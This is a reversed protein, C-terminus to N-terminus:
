KMIVMQQTAAHTATKLTYFVIGSTKSLGYTSVSPTDFTLPIENYGKPFSANVVKIVRGTADVVTLLVESETPLRFRITTEHTFPNPANPLLAFDLGEAKDPATFNLNINSVEGSAYYAEAKTWDSTINLVDSLSINQQAEVVIKFLRANKLDKLSQGNWSVTALGNENFVAFNSTNFGQLDISQIDKIQVSKNDFKLTFQFAFADSESLHIDLDYIKGAELLRNELNFKLGNNRAQINGNNSMLNQASGSVDCTKVAVFDANRITDVVNTFTMSEPLNNLPASPSPPLVTNKPIFRWATNNPIRSIQRLILKRTLLMDTADIYGDKDVDGAILKYPSTFPGIDLSHQSMLAIDYTTVGNIWDTDRLATLTFNGGRLINNFNYDSTKIITPPANGGTLTVQAAISKGTETRISGIITPIARIFPACTKNIDNVTFSTTQSIANGTSDRAWIEIYQKGTDACAFSLSATTPFVTGQGIKRIGLQIKNLSSCNDSVSAVLQQATVTAVGGNLSVAFNTKISLKPRTTDRVTVVATCNAKNGARDQVYLTVNKDGIDSCYFCPHILILYWERCNDISGNDIQLPNLGAQGTSDLYITTNRCRARPRTTDPSCQAELLNPLLFCLFFAIPVAISLVSCRLTNARIMPPLNDTLPFFIM